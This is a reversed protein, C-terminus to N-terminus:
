TGFTHRFYLLGEWTHDKEIFDRFDRIDSYLVMEDYKNNARCCFQILKPHSNMGDKYDDVIEMIKAHYRSGDEEPPM